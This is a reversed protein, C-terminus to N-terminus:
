WVTSAKQKELSSQGLRTLHLSVNSQQVKTYIPSPEDYFSDPEIDMPVPGTGNEKYKGETSSLFSQVLKEVRATSNSLKCRACFSTPHYMFESKEVITGPTSCCPKNEDNLRHWKGTKTTKGYTANMTLNTPVFRNHFWAM